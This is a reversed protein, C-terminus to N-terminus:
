VSTKGGTQHHRNATRPVSSLARARRLASATVGAYARFVHAFQQSSSFGCQGAIQTVSLRTQILLRSARNVRARNLAMNPRDGTLDKLLMAFRTRGLACAEAMQQLSWPRECEDALRAVFQQVRAQAPVLTRPRPDADRVSRSLELLLLTALADLGDETRDSREAESVLEPLLLRLRDTAPWARHSAARLTRELKRREVASIRWQGQLLRSAHKKSRRVKLIAFYLECGPEQERMSGHLEWPFTFFVSGPPVIEPRGEVHWALYGRVLLVIELGENRHAPLRRNKGIPWHGVQVVVSKAM